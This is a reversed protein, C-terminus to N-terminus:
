LGDGRIASHRWPRDFFWNRGSRGIPAPWDPFAIEFGHTDRGYIVRVPLNESRELVVAEAGQQDAARDDAIQPLDYGQNALAGVRKLM